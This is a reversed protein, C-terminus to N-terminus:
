HLLVFFHELLEFKLQWLYKKQIEIGYIQQLSDFSQIASIIFSGKGCTPEILIEPNICKGKLCICISSALRQNTQYDGYEAHNESVINQNIKLTQKFKIFDDEGEFFIAIGTKERLVSNAAEFSSLNEKEFFSLAKVGINICSFDMNANTPKANTM